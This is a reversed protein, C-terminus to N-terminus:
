VWGPSDPFFPLLFWTGLRTQCCVRYPWNWGFLATKAAAGWHEDCDRFLVCDVGEVSAKKVLKGEHPSRGSISSPKSSEKIALRIFVISYNGSRYPQCDPEKERLRIEETYNNEFVTTGPHRIAAFSPLYHWNSCFSTVPWVFERNIKARLFVLCSITWSGHGRPSRPLMFRLFPFRLCFSCPIPFPPLFVFVPLHARSLFTFHSGATTTLLPSPVLMLLFSLGARRSRAAVTNCTNCIYFFITGYDYFDVFWHADNLRGGLGWGVGM